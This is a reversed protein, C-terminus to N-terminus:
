KGIIARDVERNKGFTQIMGDKLVNMKAVVVDALQGQLDHPVRSPSSPEHETDPNPRLRKTNCRATAPSVTSDRLPSVHGDEPTDSGDALSNMKRFFVLLCLLM